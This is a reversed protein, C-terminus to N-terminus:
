QISFSPHSIFLSVKWATVVGPKLTAPSDPVVLRDFEQVISDWDLPGEREVGLRENATVIEAAEDDPGGYDLTIDVEADELEDLQVDWAAAQKQKRKKGRRPMGEEVDVSTVFLNWSSPIDGNAQRDSPPILRPLNELPTLTGVKPLSISSSPGTVEDTFVIKPPLVVPAEKYGRRKNKNSLSSMM